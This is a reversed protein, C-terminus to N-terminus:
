MANLWIISAMASSIVVFPVVNLMDYDFYYKLFILFFRVEKGECDMSWTVGFDISKYFRTADDVAYMYQGSGSIAIM